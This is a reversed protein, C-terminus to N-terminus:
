RLLILVNNIALSPAPHPHPWILDVCESQPLPTFDNFQDPFFIFLYYVADSSQHLTIFLPVMM